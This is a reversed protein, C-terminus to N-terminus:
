ARTYYAAEALRQELLRNFRSCPKQAVREAVLARALNAKNARFAAEVLTLQLLDCQAVSGGCQHAIHRVRTLREVCAAYDGHAFASLAMCLPLVLTEDSHPQGNNHAELQDFVLQVSAARGASALAMVAHAVYFPRAGTLAEDDWRDALRSWRDGIAVNGLQLRWLLASADALESMARSSAIEADYVALASEADGEELHFLAQHWALHVAYSTGRWASETAALFELGERCRGQMEMVHAIVHV